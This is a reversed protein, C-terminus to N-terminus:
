WNKKSDQQTLLQDFLIQMKPFTEIVNFEYPAVKQSMDQNLVIVILKLNTDKNDEKESVRPPVFRLLTDHRPKGQEEKAHKLGEPFLRNIDANM